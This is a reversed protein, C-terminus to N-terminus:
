FQLSHFSEFISEIQQYMGVTAAEANTNQIFDSITQVELIHMLMIWNFIGMKPIDLICQSAVGLPNTVSIGKFINIQNDKVLVILDWKRFELTSATLTCKFHNSILYEAFEGPLTNRSYRVNNSLKTM